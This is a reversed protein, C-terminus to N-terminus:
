GRMLASVQRWMHETDRRLGAGAEQLRSITKAREGGTFREILLDAQAVDDVDIVADEVGYDALLARYKHSWGIAICPVASALAGALAHFRSSFVITCRGLIGKAVRPDQPVVVDLPADLTDNLWEALKVDDNTEHLLIFPSADRALLRVVTVLLRRYSDAVETSLMHIMRASPVIAPRNAYIDHEPLHVGDLVSTFDPARGVEIDVRLGTLNRYSQDDRAFVLDALSLYTRMAHRLERNEFPGFAQPLLVIKIGRRKWWAAAHAVQVASRPGFQDSYAFGAADLVGAVDADSSLGFRRRVAAPVADGLVGALRPARRNWSLRQYLERRARYPYPAVSPSVAIDFGELLRRREEVIADLMLAAGHNKTGVGVVELM